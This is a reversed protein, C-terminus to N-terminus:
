PSKIIMVWDFHASVSRAFLGVRNPAVDLGSSATLAAGEFDTCQYSTSTRRSRLTKATGITATTPTSTIATTTKNDAIAVVPQNSPNVGFVCMLGEAAPGDFEHVVGVPRAIMDGFLADITVHTVVTELNGSIPWTLGGLSNLSSAIKATGASYSWSGFEQAGTPVHSFGEFM